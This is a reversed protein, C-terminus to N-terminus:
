KVELCKIIAEKKFCKRRKTDLVCCEETKRRKEFAIVGWDRRSSRGKRGLRWISQSDDRKKEKEEKPNDNM